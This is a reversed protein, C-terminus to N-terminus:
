RKLFRLSRRQGNQTIIVNYIGAAMSSVDIRTSSSTFVTQGAQNIIIVETNPDISGNVTLVDKVPNPHLSFNKEGTSNEATSVKKEASIQRAGASGAPPSIIVTYDEIEAAPISGCPQPETETGSSNTKVEVRITTAVSDVFPVTFTLDETTNTSSVLALQEGADDFDADRNYDIWATFYRLPQPSAVPVTVHLTYTEGETLTTSLQTYNGYGYSNDHSNYSGNSVNDITNLKVEHIAYGGPTSAVYCYALPTRFTYTVWDSPAGNCLTRIQISYETDAKLSDFTLVPTGTSGQIQSDDGTLIFEYRGRFAGGSWNIHTTFTVPSSEIREFSAAVNTVVACQTVFHAEFYGSATPDSPDCYAQIVIRYDVNPSLGTVTLTHETTTGEAVLRGAFYNYVKYQFNAAYPYDWTATFSNTNGTVNFNQVSDCLPPTLFEYGSTGSQKGSCLPRVRVNYYTDAKLGTYYITPTTVTDSRQLIGGIYLQVATAGHPRGNWSVRANFTVPSTAARTIESTFETPLPCNGPTRLTSNPDAPASDSLSSSTLLDNETIVRASAFGAHFLFFILLSWKIGSMTLVNKKMYLCNLTVIVVFLWVVLGPLSLQRDM